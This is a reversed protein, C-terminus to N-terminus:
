ASRSASPPRWLCAPGAAAPVYDLGENGVLLVRRGGPGLLLMAEEFRPDFGCCFILNAAHERDGYVAVWDAGAAAYLDDCRRAYEASPLPPAPPLAAAHPTPIHRLEIAM